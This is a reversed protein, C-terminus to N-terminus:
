LVKEPFSSPVPIKQKTKFDLFAHAQKVICHTGKASSYVYKMVFSTNGISEVCAEVDYVDGAIFPILFDVEVHRIPVMFDKPEFWEKWSYGVFQIYEEFVDHTIDLINGFFMIRAPDAERFKIRIQTKYIKM